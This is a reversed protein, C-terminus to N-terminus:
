YASIEIDKPLEADSCGRRRLAQQYHELLEQKGYILEQRWLPDTVTLRLVKLSTKKTSFAVGGFRVNKALAPGAVDKWAAIFKLVRLGSFISNLSGFSQSEASV